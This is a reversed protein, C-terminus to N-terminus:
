HLLRCQLPSGYTNGYLATHREGAPLDPQVCRREAPQYGSGSFSQENRGHGHGTKTVRIHVTYQGGKFTDLRIERGEYPHDFDPDPSVPTGAPAEIKIPNGDPDEGWYEVISDAPDLPIANFDLEDVLEDAQVTYNLTDTHFPLPDPNITGTGFANPVPTLTLTNLTSNTHQNTITIYRIEETGDQATTVMKVRVESTSPAKKPFNTIKGTDPDIQPIGGSVDGAYSEISYVVKAYKHNPEADIDITDQEDAPRGVNMLEMDIRMTHETANPDDAPLIPGVGNTGSLPNTGLSKLTADNEAPKVVNVTYTKPGQGEETVTIEISSNGGPIPHVDALTGTYEYVPNGSADTMPSGDANERQIPNGGADKLVYTITANDFSDVDFNLTDVDENVTVTYTDTEATFPEPSQSLIQPDPTINPDIPGDTSSAAISMKGLASHSIDPDGPSAPTTRTRDINVTYESSFEPDDAIIKTVVKFKGYGYKALTAKNGDVTVAIKEPTALPTGDENHTKWVTYEVRANPDEPTCDFVAPSDKTGFNVSYTKTDPDFDIRNIDKQEVPPSSGPVQDNNWPTTLVLGADMGTGRTPDINANGSKKLNYFLDSCGTFLLALLAFVIVTKKM